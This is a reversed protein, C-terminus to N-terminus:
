CCSLYQQRTNFHCECGCCGDSSGCESGYNPHNPDCESCSPTVKKEKKKRTKKESADVKPKKFKRAELKFWTLAVDVGHSEMVEACHQRFEDEPDDEEMSDEVTDDLIELPPLISKQSPEDDSDIFRSPIDFKPKTPTAPPAQGPRALGKRM